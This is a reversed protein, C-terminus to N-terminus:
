AIQRSVMFAFENTASLAEFQKKFIEMHCKGGRCVSEINSFRHSKTLLFGAQVVCTRAVSSFYLM